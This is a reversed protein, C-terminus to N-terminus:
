NGGAVGIDSRGMAWRSLACTESAQFEPEFGSPGALDDVLRIEPVLFVTNRQAQSATISPEVGLNGVLSKEPIALSPLRRVTLATM